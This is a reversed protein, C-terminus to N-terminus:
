SPIEHGESLKLANNVLLYDIIESPKSIDFTYPRINEVVERKVAQSVPAEVDRPRLPNCVMPQKLCIEAVDIEFNPDRYDTDQSSLLRGKSQAEEKLLWEYRTARESLDYLDLFVEGM